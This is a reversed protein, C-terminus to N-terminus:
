FKPEARGHGWLGAPHQDRSSLHSSCFTGLETCLGALSLFPLGLSPARCTQAQFPSQINRGAKGSEFFPELSQEPVELGAQGPFPVTGTHTVRQPVQRLQLHCLSGQSVSISRAKLFGWVGCSLRAGATSSMSPEVELVATKLSSKGRSFDFFGIEQLGQSCCASCCVRPQGDLLHPCRLELRRRQSIEGQHRHSQPLALAASPSFCTLSSSLLM